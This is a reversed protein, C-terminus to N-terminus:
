MKKFRILRMSDITEPQADHDAELLKQNVSLSPNRERPGAIYKIIINFDMPVRTEFVGPRKLSCM